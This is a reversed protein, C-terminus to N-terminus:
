DPLVRLRAAALFFPLRLFSRELMCPTEIRREQFSSAPQPFTSIRRAKAVKAEGGRWKQFPNYIHFLLYLFPLLFGKTQVNCKDLQELPCVIDDSRTINLSPRAQFTSERKLNCGQVFARNFGSIIGGHVDHFIAHSDSLLTHNHVAAM